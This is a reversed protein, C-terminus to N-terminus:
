PLVVARRAPKLGADLDEAMTDLAFSTPKEPEFRRTTRAWEL